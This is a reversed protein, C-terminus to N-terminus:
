TRGSRAGAAEKRGQSEWADHFGKRLIGDLPFDRLVAVIRRAAGGAGYPSRVGPLQARFRASVAQNLAAVIDDPGEGCDIVSAARIRGKQRDGINVTPVHLSPAEILGSSSNGVVAMCHRMAGFYLRQGLSAIMRVRRSRAATYDALTRAIACHGPDANVGTIIVSIAPFLELAGLMSRLAALGADPELTVPHYTVLFYGGDLELGVAQEVDALEVADSQLAGDVGLAGVDFVREPREGMRIIRQQYAACAAFHLHSMKTLAHRVVDDIAAETVEGGHIHAIPLRALMAAQAVALMEYRDGLLVVIDPRQRAFSRSFGALARGMAGAIDTPADGGIQMDIRDDIAFGDAVIERWTEGFRPDLHAGTVMLRLTLDGTTRIERMLWHLLGYEARAGTVVAVTRMPDALV